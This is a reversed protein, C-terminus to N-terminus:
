EEERYQKNKSHKRHAGRKREKVENNGEGRERGKREGDGCRGIGEYHFLVTHM